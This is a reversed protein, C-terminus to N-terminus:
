VDLSEQLLRYAKQQMEQSEKLRAMLLQEERELVLIMDEAEKKRYAEQEIKMQYQKKNEEEKEKEKAERRAILEKYRKREEEVKVKKEMEVKLKGEVISKKLTESAMKARDANTKRVDNFLKKSITLKRQRDNKEIAAKEQMHRTQMQLTMKSQKDKSVNQENRRKMDHIETAREKTEEVRELAKKDELKLLAIRNAIAQLDSEARKREVKTTLMQSDPTMHNLHGMPGASRPTIVKRSTSAGPTNPSAPTNPRGGWPLLSGGGRSMSRERDMRNMRDM